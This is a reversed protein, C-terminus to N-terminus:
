SKNLFMLMCRGGKMMNMRLGSFEDDEHGFGFFNIFKMVFSLFLFIFSLFLVWFIKKMM